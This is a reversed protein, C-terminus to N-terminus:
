KVAKGLFRIRGNLTRHGLGFFTLFTPSNINNDVAVANQSDTVNDVGIRAAWRYGKFNFKRELAINLTYYDPFRFQGPGSVLQGFQNVTSFPFGSRWITSYALDFKKFKWFLPTSGWSQLLNPANWPLPGPQQNGVIFNDLSFDVTQNSRANSRMYSLVFPYGRKFEKRMTFQVGDFHDQRTSELLFSGNPQSVYAWGDNGHRRVYEAKFYINKPLRTEVGTSWNLYRPMTLINPNVIFSSHITMPVPAFFVDTLSGQSAQSVLALNTRDYYVGVGASLKTETKRNVLLSGALRPSFMNQGLFSDRDWRAGAEILLRELASWRDQVYASSELTSLGFAPVNQFTIQRLLTNSADVFEIPGRHVLDHFIVRDVRGGVTIQHTGWRRWPKLYLNTFGQTRQSANVVTEFFNGTRGTPTFVYPSFGKPLSDTNNWQFGAGFELLTGQAITIQDKLTALYLNSQVNTSVSVPDFTTIGANDSDLPNWVFSATLVNGDTLNMRLRALDSSRWVRNTDQGDPLQKVINNDLEGEHSINFWVKDRVIPGSIYARPTWNNFEIGKVNQVTPLFDTANFRFHNDGDQITFDTLGGSGQGFMASYRSNVVDIKRLSDPNMRLALAGGAPQSVVFGDVYDQIQQTSSGALHIQGNQDAIVGPIYGLVNRYDRTSPYPITAIESATIAQSSATQEPDIPSPQATVEIETRYERIPQLRVEMPTAQGTAIVVDEVTTPYFGQKELVVKYTGPILRELFAYGSPATRDQALTKGEREVRVLVAGLPQGNPDM